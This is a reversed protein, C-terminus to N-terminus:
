GSSKLGWFVEHIGGTLIKRRGQVRVLNFM